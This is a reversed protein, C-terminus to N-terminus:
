ARFAAFEEMMSKFTLVENGGVDFVDNMCKPNDIVQILLQIINHISIPQCQNHIWRPAVMLPLKEVLDRVIEFSASGSGIIISSRLVTTPIASQLLINEVNVRSRLHLSLHDHNALGSLYIIQRCNTQKLMKIYNNAITSEVESLNKVRDSMAHVLFYSIDIDNPISEFGSNSELDGIM